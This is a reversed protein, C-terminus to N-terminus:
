NQYIEIVSRVADAFLAVMFIIFFLYILKKIVYEKDFEKWIEKSGAFRMSVFLIAVSVFLLFTGILGVESIRWYDASISSVGAVVILMLLNVIGDRDFLVLQVGSYAAAFAILGYFPNNDVSLILGTGASVCIFIPLIVKVFVNHSRYREFLLKIGEKFEFNEIVRKGNKKFCFILGFVFLYFISLVVGIGLGESGDILGGILCSIFPAIMWISRKFTFLQYNGYSILFAILAFCLVYDDYEGIEDNLSAVLGAGVLFAIPISILLLVAIFANHKHYCEKMFSIFSQKSIVNVGRVSGVSDLQEKEIKLASIEENLSAIKAELKDVLGDGDRHSEYHSSLNNWNARAIVLPSNESSDKRTEVCSLPSFTWGCTPCYEAEITNKSDCVPCLKQEVGISRQKKCISDLLAHRRIMLKNVEAVYEEIEKKVVKKNAEMEDKMRKKKEEEEIQAIRKEEVEIARLLDSFADAKHFDIYDLPRLLLRFKSNYNSEDIKIPIILRNCEIAEFIEGTTYISANSHVSSVFLMIKSVNIAESILEVFERGSYIGEKDFWYSIQNQELFDIISKVPSGEIINGYSDVYDKRSYSVFVDYKFKNDMNM